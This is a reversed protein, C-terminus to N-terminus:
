SRKPYIKSKSVSGDKLSMMKQLELLNEKMSNLIYMCSIYSDGLRIKLAKIIEERNWAEPDAGSLLSHKEEFPIDSYHLLRRLLGDFM